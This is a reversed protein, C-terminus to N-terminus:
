AESKGPPLLLRDPTLTSCQQRKGSSPSLLAEPHASCTRCICEDLDTFEEQPFLYGCVLCYFMGTEKRHPNCATAPCRQNESSPSLLAEQQHASCTRCIYEDLDAFEEQPLLYGCLVCFVKM